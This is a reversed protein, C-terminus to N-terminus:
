RHPFGQQWAARGRWCEAWKTGRGIVRSGLARAFVGLRLLAVVVAAARGFHTRAYTVKGALVLPMSGAPGNSSKGIAHVVEADPTIIPRLGLKRARASFDADEGYVFYREDMGGLREWDDRDVLLLCGTVMGVERVSDRDWRGLSEPDFLRSHHFLTTLGLAFCAMSWLSPLGWCSSRETRGDVTLTRGGYVGHGPNKEAFELLSRLAGPRAQMDPNLLLVWPASSARAGLNVGGSFGLNRESRILRVEPHERAVLDASGDSSANDVVVVEAQRGDLAAPLSDLCRGIWDASNYTVLIIGVDASM